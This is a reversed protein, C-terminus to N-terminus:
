PLPLEITVVAGGDPANGVTFRHGDGYLRQLRERTNALGIGAAADPDFGAPFGPGDDRVELTLRAGAGDAPGEAGPTRRAAITVHGPRGRQAVGHRVANEVLPQLLMTPVYAGLAAPEAAFRVCLQDRYRLRELAVYREAIALEDGLPVDVAGRQALLARLLESLSVLAHVADAAAGRRVLMAVTNLANFLFHPDLQARLADLRARMLQSELQAREVARARAAETEAYLRANSLALAARAAFMEVLALDGEGFRRGSAGTTAFTITGLTEGRAVLPVVIYSRTDLADYIRMLAPDGAVANADARTAAPRLVPRTTTAVRASVSAPNAPDPQYRAGFEDLLHQQAPDAHAAAVQRLRGTRDDALYVVCYDALEPVVLGTLARLTEDLDLSMALRRTADLQFERVADATRRQTVDQLYVALGGDDAPYIHAQLWRGLTAYYEESETTVREAMARRAAAAFQTGCLAPFEQWVERGLVADPSHGLTRLLAGAHRNVYRFRWGRDYAVFADAVSELIGTARREAAEVEAVAQRSTEVQEDLAAAQEELRGVLALADAALAESRQKSARLSGSLWSVLGSVASFVGLALVDPPSLPSFAGVPELFTYDVAAISLVAAMLGPGFGGSWAGVAVAAVFFLFVSHEVYPHFLRTLAYAVATAAAAVGYRVVTNGAASM